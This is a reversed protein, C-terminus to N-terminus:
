GPDFFARAGEEILEKAIATLELMGEADKPSCRAVLMGVMGIAIALQDLDPYGDKSLDKIIERARSHWDIIEDDESMASRRQGLEQAFACGESDFAIKL